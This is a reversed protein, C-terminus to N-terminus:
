QGGKRKDMKELECIVMYMTLASWSGCPIDVLFIDVITVIAFVILHKM